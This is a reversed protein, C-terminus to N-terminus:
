QYFKRSSNNDFNISSMRILHPTLYMPSNNKANNDETEQHHNYTIFTSNKNEEDDGSSNGSSPDTTLGSYLTMIENNAVHPSKSDKRHLSCCRKETCDCKCDKSKQLPITQATEMTNHRKVDFTHLSDYSQTSHVM